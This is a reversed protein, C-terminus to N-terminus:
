EFYSINTVKLTQFINPSKSQAKTFSIISRDIGYYKKFDNFQIWGVSDELDNFNQLIVDMLNFDKDKKDFEIKQLNYGYLLKLKARNELSIINGSPTFEINTYFSYNSKAFKLGSLTYGFIISKGINRNFCIVYLLNNQSVKAMIISFKPKLKICTLLEFDFLKRIFIKSDDGGTIVIGLREDIELVNISGLHGTIYKDFIIDYKPGTKKNNKNDNNNDIFEHIIARILRGNRLGIIFSNHSLAKCCMVFDECIHTYTEIEELKNKKFNLTIFHLKFSNDIHRCTILKCKKIKTELNKKINIVNHFNKINTNVTHITNINENSYLYFSTQNNNPPFSSFAYKLNHIYFNKDYNDNKLIPITDFLCIHPLDFENFFTWNYDTQSSLNYFNTDVITLKSKDGLIFVKELLPNTEFYLGLYKIEQATNDNKLQGLMYTDIFDTGQYNDKLGYNIIGESNESNSGILERNKHEESFIQYPCQGFSIIMNIRNAFKKIIKATNSAYKESLKELKKELDNYLEYTSKPFVNYSIEIKKPPPIQMVGFVNDIWKNINFAIADSNLLKKHALIFKSNLTISNYVKIPNNVQLLIIDDVLEGNKKYGFFGCNVNIFCDLKSFLEPILERNDYGSNMISITDKLKLLLRNPDEKAYNQLEIILTNYPENRMLYYDVYSSTSYHTGHHFKYKDDEDRYKELKIKRKEAIQTSVPYRFDRLDFILEM